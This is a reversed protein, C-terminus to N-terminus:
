ALAGVVEDASTVIAQRPFIKELLVRHAEADKDSRCDGVVLLAIDRRPILPAVPTACGFRRGSVVAM